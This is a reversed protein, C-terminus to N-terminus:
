PKSVDTDDVGAIKRLIIPIQKFDGDPYWLVKIGLNRYVEDQIHKFMDEKQSSVKYYKTPNASDWNHDSLSKTPLIAYHFKNEESQRRVSELLRRLNPDSLSLGIFICTRRYLAHVIEINSWNNFNEYLNHYADESLVPLTNFDKRKVIGHVHIVPMKDGEYRSSDYVSQNSIGNTTLAEEVLNDYNFTIISNVLRVGEKNVRKCVDVIAEILKSKKDDGYDKYLAQELLYGANSGNKNENISSLIYRATIIPSNFTGVSLAPYDESKLVSNDEIKLLNQLLKDWTPLGADISVGAGLFLTINGEEFANKALDEAPTIQPQQIEQESLESTKEDESTKNDKEKSSIIELCKQRFKGFTYYYLRSAKGKLVETNIVRPQRGITIIVVNGNFNNTLRLIEEVSKTFLYAKVEIITNPGWDLAKCGEPLYFDAILKSTSTKNEQESLIYDRKIPETSSCVKLLLRAISNESSYYVSELEEM